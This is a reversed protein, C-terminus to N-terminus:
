FEKFKFIEKKKKYKKLILIKEDYAFIYYPRCTIRLKLM